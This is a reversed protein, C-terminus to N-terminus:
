HTDVCNQLLAKRCCHASRVAPVDFVSTPPGAIFEYLWKNYASYFFMPSCVNGMYTYKISAQKTMPAQKIMPAQKTVLKGIVIKEGRTITAITGIGRGIGILTRGLGGWLQRSGFTVLELFWLLLTWFCQLFNVRFIFPSSKATLISECELDWFLGDTRVRLSKNTWHQVFM